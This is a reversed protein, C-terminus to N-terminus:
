SLYTNYAYFCYMKADDAYLKVYVNRLQLCDPLDNIYILFLSPGLVSGQPVGSIIHIPDSLTSSIRVVQTRGSLFASIWLLLDGCIGYASLKALLKTHSVTDFAKQFDIYIVDTTLKNNLALTFDNLTELLNTTTSHKRLFGHQHKTILQNQLLYDILQTNIIREMAKCCTSTLSIPRYNCPDATTGKKFIPTVIAQLWSAPLSHNRFSQDFIFALPLALTSSRKSM